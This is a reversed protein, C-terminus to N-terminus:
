NELGLKWSKTFFASGWDILNREEWFRILRMKMPIKFLQTFDLFKPITVIAYEVHVYPRLDNEFTHRQLHLEM